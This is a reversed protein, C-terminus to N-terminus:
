NGNIKARAELTTFIIVPIYIVWFQWTVLTYGLHGLWFGLWMAWIIGYLTSKKM